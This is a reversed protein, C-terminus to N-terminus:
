EDSKEEENAPTNLEFNPRDLFKRCVTPIEVWVRALEDLSPAPRSRAGQAACTPATGLLRARENPSRLGQVRRLIKRRKEICAQRKSAYRWEDVAERWQAAAGECFTPMVPARRIRPVRFSQVSCEGQRIGKLGEGSSPPSHGALAGLIIIPLLLVLVVNGQDSLERTDYEIQCDVVELRDGEVRLDAVIPGATRRVTKYCGSSCWAIAAVLLVISKKSRARARDERTWARKISAADTKAM